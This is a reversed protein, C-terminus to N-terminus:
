SKLCVTGVEGVNVDVERDGAHVEGVVVCIWGLSRDVCSIVTKTMTFVVIASHHQVGKDKMLFLGRIRSTRLM